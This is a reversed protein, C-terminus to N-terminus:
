LDCRAPCFDHLRDILARVLMVFNIQELASAPLMNGADQNQHGLRFFQGHDVNYAIHRYLLDARQFMVKNNVISVWALLLFFLLAMIFLLFLKKNTTANAAAVSNALEGCAWALSSKPWITFCM